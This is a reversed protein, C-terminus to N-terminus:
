PKYRDLDDLCDWLDQYHLLAAQCQLLLSPLGDDRRWTLKLPEPLQMLAGPAKAPYEAPLRM